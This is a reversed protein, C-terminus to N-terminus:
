HGSSQRAIEVVWHYSAYGVSSLLGGLAVIVGWGVVQQRVRERFEDRKKERIIMRDVYNRHAEHREDDIKRRADLVKNLTEELQQQTLEAM